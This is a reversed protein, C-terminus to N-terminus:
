AKIKTQTKTIVSVIVPTIFAPFSFTNSMFDFFNKAKTGFADIYRKNTINAWNPVSTNSLDIGKTFSATKPTLQISIFDISSFKLDIQPKENKSLTKSDTLYM